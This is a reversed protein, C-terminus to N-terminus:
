LSMHENGHITSIFLLHKEREANKMGYIRNGKIGWGYAYAENDDVGYEDLYLITSPDKTQLATL